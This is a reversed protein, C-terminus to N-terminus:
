VGLLQRVTTTWREVGYEALVAVRLREAADRAQDPDDLLRCLEAAIEPDTDVPTMPLDPALGRLAAATVVQPVGFDAADLVKIQIGATYDLPAVAVRARGAVAALDAFDAVLTWGNEACRRRVEPTPDAGAVLLTTGPRRALVRPWLRALRAM